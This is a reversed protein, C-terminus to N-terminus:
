KIYSNNILYFFKHLAAKRGHLKDRATLKLQRLLSQIVKAKAVDKM